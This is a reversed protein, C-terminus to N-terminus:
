VAKVYIKSALGHGIVLHSNRVKIEVPGSLIGNRLVKVETEPVLGMENLRQVAFGCADIKIVKGKNGKKLCTLPILSNCNENYEVRKEMM